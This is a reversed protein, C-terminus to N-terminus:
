KLILEMMRQILGTPLKKENRDALGEGLCVIVEEHTINNYLGIVDLSVVM